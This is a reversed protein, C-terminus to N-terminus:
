ISVKWLGQEDGLPDSLPKFVVYFDGKQAGVPFYVDGAQEGGGVLTGFPLTPRGTITM